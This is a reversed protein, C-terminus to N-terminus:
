FGKRSKLFVYAFFPAGILATVVGVPLEGQRLAIRALVDALVAFGGGIVVCMPLVYKHEAGFIRRVIHPIVLDIFGIIGTFAIVSGTLASACLMTLWKIGQANVGLSEATEEGFTIIDLQKHRSMILVFCLFYIPLIAILPTFGRGAFSGMQWFILREANGRSLSVIFTTLANIFLSVVMGTLVVTGAELNQDITKALFIVLMMTIMGTAFGALPLDFIGAFSIGLLLVLAAGFSAGSSVGLTFSSALSNRLQAQMLAGCVSLAGGATFALLARPLRINLIIAASFPDSSLGILAKLVEIPSLWVSGVAVGPLLALFSFVCALTIRAKIKM